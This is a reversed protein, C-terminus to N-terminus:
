APAGSTEAAAAKFPQGVGKDVYGKLSVKLYRDWDVACAQYCGLGPHLGKHMFYLETGGNRGNLIFVPRTGVWEDSKAFKDAPPLFQEVCEWRVERDPVLQTIKMVNRTRGFRFVSNEGTKRGVECDPTWWAALGEPSTLAKYVAGPDSSFNLECIYDRM